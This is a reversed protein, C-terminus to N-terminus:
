PAEEPLPSFLIQEFGRKVLERALGESHGDGVTVQILDQDPVLGDVIQNAFSQDREKVAALGRTLGFYSGASVVFPVAFPALRVALRFSSFDPPVAYALLNAALLGSIASVVIGSRFIADGARVSGIWITAFIKNSLTPNVNPELHIFKPPKDTVAGELLLSRFKACVKNADLDFPRSGRSSEPVECFSEFDKVHLAAEVAADTMNGSRVQYAAAQAVYHEVSTLITTDDSARDPGMSQRITQNFQDITAQLSRPFWFRRVYSDTIMEVGRYPFARVVQEGRIADQNNKFHIEGLIVVTKRVLGVAKQLIRISYQGEFAHALADKQQADLTPLDVLAESCANVISAGARASSVVGTIMLICFINVKM